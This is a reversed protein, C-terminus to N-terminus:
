DYSVLSRYFVLHTLAVKIFLAGYVLGM